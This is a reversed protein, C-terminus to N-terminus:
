PQAEVTVNLVKCLAEFDAETDAFLTIEHSGMSILIWRTTDHSKPAVTFDKARVHHISLAFCTPYKTRGANFAENYEDQTM